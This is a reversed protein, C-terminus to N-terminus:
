QGDAPKPAEPAPAPAEPKPAEPAPAESKPAEPKPNEPAPAPAEVEPPNGVKLLSIKEEIYDTFASDPHLTFVEQYHQDAADTDGAELALDGLRIRALPALEGDKQASITKEYHSKAAEKDGATHFLNALAFLGQARRPHTGFEGLFRELTARADEPKGQDIQLDAKSLLANGAAVSGPHEVTVADFAAIEGKALASSYAAAAALHKQKKVQGWILIACLAVGGAAVGILIKNRNRDIAEVVGAAESAALADLNKPAGPEAPNQPADAM